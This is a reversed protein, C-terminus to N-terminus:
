NKEWRFEYLLMSPRYRYSINETTCKGSEISHFTHGIQEIETKDNWSCAIISKMDQFKEKPIFLFQVVLNGQTDFFHGSEIAEWEFHYIIGNNEEKFDKGLKKILLEKTAKQRWLSHIDTYRDNIKKTTSCSFILFLIFVKIM